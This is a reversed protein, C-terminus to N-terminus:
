LLGAMGKVQEVIFQYQQMALEPAYFVLNECIAFLVLKWHVYVTHLSLKSCFCKATLQLHLVKCFVKVSDSMSERLDM